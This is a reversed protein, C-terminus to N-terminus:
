KQVLILDNCICGKVDVSTVSVYQNSCVPIYHKYRDIRMSVFADFWRDQLMYVFWIAQHLKKVEAIKTRKPGLVSWVQWWGNCDTAHRINFLM